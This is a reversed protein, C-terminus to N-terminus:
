PTGMLPRWTKGGDTTGYLYSRYPSGSGCAAWADLSSAVWGGVISGGSAKDCFGSVDLDAVFSRTSMDFLRVAWADSDFFTIRGNPYGDVDLGLGRGLHTTADAVWTAGGDTSAWTMFDWGSGEGTAEVEAGAVLRGDAATPFQDFAFSVMAGIPLQSAKWTKGGDTTRLISTPPNAFSFGWGDLATEFQMQEPWVVKPEGANASSTPTWTAGGDSTAWLQAKLGARCQVFGHQDDIWDDGTRECTAAAPFASSTWTRGGDATRYFYHEFTPRGISDKGTYREFFFHGHRADTFTVGLAMSPSMAGADVVGWTGALESPTMDRWTDGGNDTAYLRGPDQTQIWGFDTGVRGGFVPQAPVGPWTALPTTTASPSASPSPETTGGPALAPSTQNSYRWLLAGGLLVVVALTAALSMWGPSAHGTRSPRLSAPGRSARNGTPTQEMAASPRAPFARWERSATSDGEGLRSVHEFLGAPADQATVTRRIEQGLLLQIERDNM